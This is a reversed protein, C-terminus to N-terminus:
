CEFHRVLGQELWALLLNLVTESIESEPLDPLLSECLDAFDDGRIAAELLAHEVESVPRFQSLRDIGRWLLWVTPCELIPGPPPNSTKLAQWIPVANTLTPYLHVSPHFRIRLDPWADTPISQLDPVSARASDPADFVDLMLREFGTLEALIPLQDYPSERRLFDPLAQGFDRLSKVTSPHRRIYSETLEEFQEDGLYSATMEHDTELAQHLRIGYASAYISLRAQTSLPPQDAVLAEVGPDGHHLFRLMTDQLDRLALSDAM